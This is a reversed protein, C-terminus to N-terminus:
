DASKPRGSFIDIKECLEIVIKQLATVMEELRLLRKEVTCESKANEPGLISKDTSSLPISSEPSSSSSPFILFVGHSRSWFVPFFSQPESPSLPGLPSTSNAVTKARKALPLSTM